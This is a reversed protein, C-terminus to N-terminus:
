YRLVLAVGGLLLISGIIRGPSAIHVPFGIWGFNDVLVSAVLQGTIVCGLYGAAGLRPGAVISTLVYFAGLVGGIWIWPPAGAFQAGSPWSRRTALFCLALACTGVLFSILGTWIPQGAYRRLANNVGVQVVVAAGGVLALLVYQTKM